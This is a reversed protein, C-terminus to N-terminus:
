GLWTSLFVFIGTMIWLFVLQEEHSFKRGVQWFLRTNLRGSDMNQLRWADFLVHLMLGMVVGKGFVSATSTLAFFALFVWVVMFLASRFTLKQQESRRDDLLRLAQGYKRQKWLWTFQQSLQEKPYSYAYVIRDLFLVYVGVLVGLTLMVGQVWFSGETFSGGSLGKLLM